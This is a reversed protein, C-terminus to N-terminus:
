KRRNLLSVCSYYLMLLAGSLLLSGIIDSFWHVGSLTRGIVTLLIIMSSVTNAIFLLKRNAIRNRFQIMASGIITCVMMIHSSPYSSELEGNILVPRYNIINIEFFCYVAAVAIYLMGLLYIEADVKFFSKRNLLQFFGLFAFGAAIFIAAFGLLETFNYWFINEGIINRFFGNISALGVFFGNPGIPQVDAHKVLITFILFLFFLLGTFLFNRKTKM